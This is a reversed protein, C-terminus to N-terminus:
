IAVKMVKAKDIQKETPLNNNAKVMHKAIQLTTDVLGGKYCGTYSTRTSAPANVFDAGLFSILKDNLFGNEKGVEFYKKGNSTVKDDNIM